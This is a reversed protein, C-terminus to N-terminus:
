VTHNDENKNSLYDILKDRYDPYIGRLYNIYIRKISTESSVQAFELYRIPDISCKRTNLVLDFDELDFIALVVGSKNKVILEASSNNQFKFDLTPYRKKLYSELKKNNNEAFFKEVFNM